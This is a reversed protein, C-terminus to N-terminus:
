AQSGVKACAHHYLPSQRSALSIDKKRGTQEKTRHWRPFIRITLDHKQTLTPSDHWLVFIKGIGSEGIARLPCRAQLTEPTEPTWLRHCNSVMLHGTQENVLKYRLSLKDILAANAAVVLITGASTDEQM